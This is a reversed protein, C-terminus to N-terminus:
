GRELAEDVLVRALGNSRLEVDYGLMEALPGPDADAGIVAVGTGRIAIGATVDVAALLAAVEDVLGSGVRVLAIATGVSPLDVLPRDTRSEIRIPEGDITVTLDAYVDLPELDAEGIARLARATRASM